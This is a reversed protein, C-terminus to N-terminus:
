PLLFSEFLVGMLFFVLAIALGVAFLGGSENEQRRQFREGFELAYGTPLRWQALAPRLTQFLAEEDGTIKLAVRAKRDDREIRGYGAAAVRRTIQGLPAATANSDGPRDPRVELHDVQAADARAEPALEVRMELEGDDSQWAGLRRGRLTYDLTGGVALPSVGVRDAAARDVEFRLETSEDPEELGAGEVGPLSRAFTALEDALEEAVPTEPGAVYVTLGETAAGGGGGGWGIRVRFGPREPILAKIREIAVTRELTRDELDVMFIQLHVQQPGHGRRALVARIDLAERQAALRAECDRVWADLEDFTANAPAYLRVRIADLGGQMQDVREIRGVPWLASLLAGLILLGAALRHTLAWHLQRAYLDQLWGFLRGSRAAKVPMRDAATPIFVLAVFLSALLAYCVPFGIRSLYFAIFPNDGLLILPLFVVLTTLTALTIAL